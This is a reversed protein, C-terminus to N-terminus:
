KWSAALILAIDQPGQDLAQDWMVGTQLSYAAMAQILRDVQTNLLTQGDNTQIVEVQASSAKYWDKITVRDDTGHLAVRLDNVQRSLVLELPTIDGFILSDRTGLPRTM